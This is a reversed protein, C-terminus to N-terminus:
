RNIKDFLIFFILSRLTSVTKSCMNGDKKTIKRGQLRNECLTKFAQSLIFFVKGQLHREIVLISSVWPTLVWYFFSSTKYFITARSPVVQTLWQIYYVIFVIQFIFERLFIFIFYFIFFYFYVISKVNGISSCITCMVRMDYSM